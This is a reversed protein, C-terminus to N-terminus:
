VRSNNIVAKLEDESPLYLMYKSAFLNKNDDLVSYKVIADSKESCLIIGITPNDGQQKIQDEYYRVYFDMQGIDQHNLKGIKLDILVFCKLIYNYFVLDIYYHEENIDIRKQRGVFSFGNGLELLFEQLNDIVKQEIEKELYKRNEKLDLFELVFPDKIIDKPTPNPELTKIEERVAEKDQSSLLREYYFSNIQRELQRTSWHNEICEKMYFERIEEKHIKMLFRYHTWSLQDSLAHCNQFTLYFQRIYKLNTLTFGKGYEETLMRSVQKLTEDGYKAKESGGQYDVIIKGIAWYTRVMTSNVYSYVKNRSDEILTKIENYMKMDVLENNEIVASKNM